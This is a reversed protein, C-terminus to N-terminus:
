SETARELATPTLRRRVIAGIVVLPEVTYRFWFRKPNEILRYLWEFGAVGMWRPPTGVNGSVYEMCAGVTCVCTPALDALHRLIWREQRGMGMGVLMVHPAFARVDDLIRRSAAGDNEAFFGSRCRIQLEPLRAAIAAAGDRAVSESGGLVYLRWGREAARELLPWILDVLTVRHARTAPIGFLRSLWVVPMGDIHVYTREHAHLAAFAPERLGVYLGHVNQSAVVCPQRREVHTALLDLLDGITTPTIKTGLLDYSRFKAVSADGTM